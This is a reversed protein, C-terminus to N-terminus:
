REEEGPRGPLTPTLPSGQPKQGTGVDMEAQEHRGRMGLKTKVGTKQGDRRGDRGRPERRGDTGRRGRGRGEAAPQRTEPERPRESEGRPRKQMGRGGRPNKTGVGTEGEPALGGVGESPGEGPVGM